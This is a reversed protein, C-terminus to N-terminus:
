VRREGVNMDMESGGAWDSGFVGNEVFRHFTSYPWDAVHNVLGHKVPTFHVYDIHAAYDRDDRIAHEWFRRQWVGRRGERQQSESIRSVKRGSTMYRQTFKRKIMSWRTSFDDDSDPMKWICHLHDSLLVLALVEFPKQNRTDEIAQHLFERLHSDNFLPRQNCTKVTFFYTGGAQTWRLYDSM